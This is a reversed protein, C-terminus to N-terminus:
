KLSKLLPYAYYVGLEGARSMDAAAEAKRGLKIFLLGRNFYAEAFDNADAIAKSYCDVAEQTRGLRELVLAKDYWAYAMDPALELAKDLDELARLNAERTLMGAELRDGAEHDHRARRRSEDMALRVFARELLPAVFDPKLSIVKDLDALASEYNKLMAYAVARGLYHPTGMAAHGTELNEAFAFLSVAQEAEPTEGATRSLYLSSPLWHSRNISELEELPYTVPQGEVYPHTFTLAFLGFPETESTSAAVPRSTPMFSIDAVASECLRLEKLSGSGRAIALNNSAEVNTPNMELAASFDSIAKAKNGGALHAVGRNVYLADNRPSVSLARDLLRVALALDGESLALRSRMTLPDLAYRDIALAKDLLASADANRGNRLLDRARATFGPSFRPYLRQLTAFTAESRDSLGLRSEALAKYYLFTRDDPAQGLGAEFDSLAASDQRLHLRALGRVRYPERKFSNIKLATTCDAAAGAYDELMLKALGRMLYPECLYPKAKIAKNFYQIALVYDESALLDQGIALTQEASIQGCVPAAGGLAALTLAVCAIIRGIRRM